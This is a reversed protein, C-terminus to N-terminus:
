SFKELLARGPFSLKRSLDDSSLRSRSVSRAPAHTHIQPSGRAASGTGPRAPSQSNLRASGLRPASIPPLRQPAPWPTGPPSPGRPKHGKVEQPQVSMLPLATPRLPRGGRSQSGGAGRKRGRSGRLSGPFRPSEPGSRARFLSPRPPLRHPGAASHRPFTLSGWFPPSRAGCKRCWRGPYCVEKRPSRPWPSSPSHAPSGSAHMSPHVGPRAPSPGPTGTHPAGRRRRRRAGPDGSARGSSRSEAESELTQGAQWESGDKPLNRGQPLIPLFLNFTRPLQAGTHRACAGRPLPQPTSGPRPHAESPGGGWLRLPASAGRKGTETPGHLPHSIRHKSPVGNRSPILPM